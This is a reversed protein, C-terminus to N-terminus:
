GGCVPPLIAVRDGDNLKVDLSTVLKDNVAVASNELWDKLTEDESLVKKLEKLSGVDLEINEKNIPGLFEVKVM